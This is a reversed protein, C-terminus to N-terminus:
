TYGGKVLVVVKGRYSKLSVSKGDLDTLDLDPAPSGIAPGAKSFNRPAFLENERLGMQATLTLAAGFTSLFTVIACAGIILRKM